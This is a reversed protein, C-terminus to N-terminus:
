KNLLKQVRVSELTGGNETVIMVGNKSIAKYSKEALESTRSKVASTSEVTSATAKPQLPAHVSVYSYDCLTIDKPLRVVGTVSGM